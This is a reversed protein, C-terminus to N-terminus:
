EFMNEDSSEESSLGTKTGGPLFAAKTPKVTAPPKEDESSAFPDDSEQHQMTRKEKSNITNELLCGEEDSDSDLDGMMTTAIPKDGFEVESDEEEDSSNIGMKFREQLAKIRQTTPSDHSKKSSFTTRGPTTNTAASTGSSDRRGSTLKEKEAFAVLKAHLGDPDKRAVLLVDDVTITRRSAHRSFAHLDTALCKTSYLYVLESLAVVAQSSIQASADSMEEEMCIQAVAHQVAARIDREESM